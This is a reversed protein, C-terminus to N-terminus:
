PGPSGFVAEVVTWARNGLGIIQEEHDARWLGVVWSDCFFHNPFGRGSFIQWLLTLSRLWYNPDECTAFSVVPEIAHFSFTGDEWQVLTLGPLLSPGKAAFVALERESMNKIDQQIIM